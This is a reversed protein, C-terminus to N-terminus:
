AGSSAAHPRVAQLADRVSEGFAQALLPPVPNGLQRMQESRPGALEWTDPFSMLRAVERVTFYRLSGDDLEVVNEGGAVGHVGAKVTKAPYDLRNPRHKRYTRASPWRARHLFPPSEEKDAGPEPLGSLENRVTRWRKGGGGVPLMNATDTPRSSLGYERWYSGTAKAVILEGASHTQEPDSWKANLDRRFAVIFVRRRFQAVGFDAANVPGIYVDYRESRDAGRDSLHRRLRVDHEHWAESKSRKVFPARLERVIYDFYPRFSPRLLGLASECPVARPRVERAARFLSPFGNRSDQDGLAKGALSFPQCPAGGALVDVTGNLHSFDVDDIDAPILPLKGSLLGPALEKANLRVTECAWKNIEHHFGARRLGLALGGAGAFLELSTGAEGPEDERARVVALSM